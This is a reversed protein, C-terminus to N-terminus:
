RGAIGPQSAALERLSIGGPSTDKVDGMEAALQLLGHLVEM